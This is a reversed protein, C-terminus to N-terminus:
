SPSPAPAPTEAEAPSPSATAAPTPAIPSPLARRVPAAAAPSEEPMVPSASRSPSPTAEDGVAATDSPTTTKAIEESPLGTQMGQEFDPSAPLPPLEATLVPGQSPCVTVPVAGQIFLEKYAVGSLPACGEALLMGTQPDVLGLVVGAPMAWPAPMARGSYVRMMVRAWVPAALRGGTAKAMITRQHDFGMWVTAVIEPTYGVFWVDAGDNTTGTKGAAPAHFGAQTVAQGTGRALVDELADTIVYAVSPDLVPRRAPADAQWLPNGDEGDVRVVFRPKVGQGLAAFATYAATLEMPSVAVTGLAM